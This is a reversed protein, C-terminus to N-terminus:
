QGEGVVVAPKVWLLDAALWQVHVELGHNDRELLTVATEISGRMALLDSGMLHLGPLDDSRVYAGDSDETVLLRIERGRLNSRVAPTSGTTEHNSAVHEATSSHGSEALRAIERMSEPPNIGWDGNAIRAIEGLRSSFTNRQEALEARSEALEAIRKEASDLRTLADDRECFLCGDLAVPQNAFDTVYLKSHECDSM